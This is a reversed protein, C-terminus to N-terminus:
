GLIRRRYMMLAEEFIYNLAVVVLIVLTFMVILNPLSNSAWENLNDTNGNIYLKIVGLWPIEKWAVSRIEDYQVLSNNIGSSQDFQPNTVNDGLTVYGSEPNYTSLLDLNLYLTSKNFEGVSYFYLIGKLSTYDTIEVDDSICKWLTSDYGALSEASWTGDGNYELWVFARHIVPNLGPREYVIVSGYEGFSSYGTQYGEVYTVIQTKDPDKVLMMDGTDIVGIQSEDDHQMSESEIVTFPPDVGSSESIWYYVGTMVLFLAAITVVFAITEKKM